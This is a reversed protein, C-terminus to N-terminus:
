GSKATRARDLSSVKGAAPRSGSRSRDYAARAGGRRQPRVGAEDPLRLSALLQKLGNATNNAAVLASGIRLDYAEGSSDPVLRMWTDVDGRLVADLRDLRDKARCAELLQVRQPEDLEHVDAVASWLAAGGESLAEPVPGNSTM